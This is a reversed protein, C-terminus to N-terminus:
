ETQHKFMVKCKEKTSQTANRQAIQGPFLEEFKMRFHVRPYQLQLCGLDNEYIIFCFLLLNIFKTVILAVLIQKFLTFFAIKMPQKLQRLKRGWRVLIPRAVLVVLHVILYLWLFLGASLACFSHPKYPLFHFRVRYTLLASLMQLISQSMCPQHNKNKTSM